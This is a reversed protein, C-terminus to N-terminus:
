SGVRLFGRYEDYRAELEAESVSALREVGFDEVTFSAAVIGRVIAEKLAEEEVRGARTLHGMMAGAFSDGAGTPDKVCATPYAPLPVTADPTFLVAGHEGKKVVVLALGMELVSRGARIPNVEGSLLLAEGDNIVLGDIREILTLLNDRQTKIWLDMTDAVVLEPRGSVQDLVSLQTVPAANALFVFRSDKFSDPIKPQFDEFVNLDVELTERDNMDQSYQGTWRFTKGGPVREIGSTDVSRSRLLDVHREDFDEGVVGVLRVPTPPSAAISFYVASGGLADAKEGHPTKITDYAISGVVLLPM